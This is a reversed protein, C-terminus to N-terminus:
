HYLLYTCSDQRKIYIAIHLQHIGICFPEHANGANLVDLFQDVYIWFKVMSYVADLKALTLKVLSPIFNIKGNLGSFQTDTSCIYLQNGQLVNLRFQLLLFQFGPLIEGPNKPM